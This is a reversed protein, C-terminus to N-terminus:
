NFDSNEFCANLEQRVMSFGLAVSWWFIQWVVETKGTQHQAGRQLLAESAETWHAQYWLSVTHANGKGEAKQEESCADSCIRFIHSSPPKIVLSYGPMNEIALQIILNSKAEQPFMKSCLEIVTDQQLQPPNLNSIRPRHGPHTLQKKLSLCYLHRSRQWNGSFHKGPWIGPSFKQHHQQLALLM